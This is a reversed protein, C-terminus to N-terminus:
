AHCVECDLSNCKVPEAVAAGSGLDDEQPEKVAISVCFGGHETTMVVLSAALGYFHPKNFVADVNDSRELQIDTLWGRRANGDDLADALREDFLLANM